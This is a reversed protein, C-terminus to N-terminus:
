QALKLYPQRGLMRALRGPRFRDGSHLRSRYRGGSLDDRCARCYVGGLKDRCLTDGAGEGGACGSPKTLFTTVAAHDPCARVDGSTNSLRFYGHHIVLSHVTTGSSCTTGYPCPKCELKTANDAYTIPDYFGPNCTCLPTTPPPPPSPPAPPGNPIPSSPRATLPPPLQPAATPPPLPSVAESTTESLRRGESPSFCIKFGAREVGGDTSWAMSSITVGDPPGSSGCYKTQVGSGDDVVLSDCGCNNCNYGSGEVDFLHIELQVPSGFTIACSESTGYDPLGYQPGVSAPGCAHGPFNSSCVCAGNFICGDGSTTFTLPSVPPLPPPRPPLAPGEGSICIKWGTNETRTDSSWALFSAVVGDPPGNSGCYKTSTSGDPWMELYDFNCSDHPEVDFLHTELQVPSSFAVVCEESSSYEGSAANTPACEGAYNSSCVCDAEM